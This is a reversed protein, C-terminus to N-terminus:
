AVTTTKLVVAGGACFTTQGEATIVAADPIPNVVVELANSAPSECSILTIKVSYSGSETATYTQQTAGTILNLGKYWQYSDAVTTTKLVVTGGACFTTQGEATIVAADPIPNVTVTAKKANGVANDCIDANRVTVFYDTTSGPEVELTAGEKIKNTLQSDSYWTFVAGLLTSEATLMVKNGACITQNTVTVDTALARNKITIDVGASMVECGNSNRVKVLYKGTKTVMFFSSTAGAIDGNNDVWQYTLNTNNSTVSLKVAEGSCSVVNGEVTITSIEPPPIITIEVTNSGPTSCGAENTVVLSYTGAEFVMLKKNIAGPILVGELYWQNGKDISSTLTTGDGDCLETKNSTITVTIPNEAVKLTGIAEADCGFSSRVLVRIGQGDLNLPVNSLTLISTNSGKVDTGEAFDQWGNSGNKFQWKYTNNEGSATATIAISKGNCVALVNPLTVVPLAAVHILYTTKHQDNRETGLTFSGTASPAGTVEMSKNVDDRKFDLAPVNGILSVIDNNGQYSITPIASGACLDYIQLHHYKINNCDEVATGNKCELHPDSPASGDPNLNPNTADPDTVDAPRLISAEATMVPISPSVTLKGVITFEIECNNNMDLTATFKGVGTLANKVTGVGNTITSTPNVASIQFGKPSLFTFLAGQVDSPGSNKLKVKYVVQQDSLFTSLDPTISLVKLDAVKITLDIPNDIESGQIYAWTDMSKQNGFSYSGSGSNPVAPAKANSPAYAGWKHGNTRSPLGNIANLFPNSSEPFSGAGTVDSDDWYTRDSYVSEDKNNVDLDYTTNNVTLEIILGLPNIEMDIYPFHVEASQLKTKLTSVVSAPLLYNGNADKGDWFVSNEGANAVGIIIRNAIAGAATVVPITIRYTGITSSEFKIHAGNRGALGPSGEAGVIKLNTIKPLVADNKLWTESVPTTAIAAKAPLDPNPKNYFIKHTTNTGNDASIPNHTYNLIDVLTSKDLSKYTPVSNVAFGNSNSFFTFGVGNSGNTKVRYARGDKTLVYHTAYYAKEPTFSAALHLNLVNAYVRGTFWEDGGKKMVSVDWAAIEDLNGNTGSGNSGSQTWDDNALIDPVDLKDTGDLGSPPLFEIKWIGKTAETVDVTFPTYANANDNKGKKPGAIEGKRNPIRGATLATNSYSTVGLPSTVAIKGKGYGHASSAVAIVEGANAYVYHTGATKFPWSESATNNSNCYLFARNGTAGAPYLDKSGEAYAVSFSLLVCFVVLCYLKNTLLFALHRLTKLMM